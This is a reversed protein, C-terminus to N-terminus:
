TYGAQWRSSDGIYALGVYYTLHLGICLLRDRSISFYLFFAMTKGDVRTYVRETAPNKKTEDQICRFPGEM